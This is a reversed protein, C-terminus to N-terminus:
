RIAAMAVGTVTLAVVLPVGCLTQWAVGAVSPMALPHKKAVVTGPGVAGAAAFGCHAGPLRSLASQM